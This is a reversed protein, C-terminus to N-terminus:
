RIFLTCPVLSKHELTFEHGRLSINLKEKFNLVNSTTKSDYIHAVIKFVEIMDGRARRCLPPFLNLNSDNHIIIMRIHM